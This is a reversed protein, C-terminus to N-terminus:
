LIGNVAKWAMGGWIVNVFHSFGVILFFILLINFLVPPLERGPTNKAFGLSVAILLTFIVATTHFSVWRGWDVAVLYLPLFLFASAVYAKIFMRGDIFHRGIVIIPIATIAYLLAFSLVLPSFFMWFTATLYEKLPIELAKIAGSCIEADVGAALVPRCVTMYDTVTDFSFAIVVTAVCSGALIILLAALERRSIASKAFLLYYSFAFFPAFFLNGEHSLVAFGFVFASVYILIRSPTLRSTAYLLLTFALFTILEKRLGGQDDLSWFSIFFGPSLILLWITAPTDSRRISQTLLGMAALLLSIQLLVVLLVVDISLTQSVRLLLSGMIGRRVTTDVSNILWDGQKWSNGGLLFDQYALVVVYLTFM